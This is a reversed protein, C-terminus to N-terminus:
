VSWSRAKSDAEKRYFTVCAICIYHCTSLLMNQHFAKSFDIQVVVSTCDNDLAWPVFCMMLLITADRYGHLRSSPFILALVCKYFGFDLVFKCNRIIIFFYKYKEIVFPGPCVSPSLFVKVCSFCFM